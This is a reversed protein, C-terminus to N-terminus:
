HLRTFSKTVFPQLESDDYHNAPLFAIMEPDLGGAPHAAHLLLDLYRPERRGARVDIVIFYQRKRWWV